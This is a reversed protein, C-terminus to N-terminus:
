HCTVKLSDAREWNGNVCVCVYMCVCKYVPCHEQWSILAPIWQDKSMRFAGCVKWMLLTLEKVVLRSIFRWQLTVVFLIQAIVPNRLVEHSLFARVSIHWWRKSWTQDPARSNSARITDIARALLLQLEETQDVPTLSCKEKMDPISSRIGVTFLWSTKSWQNM